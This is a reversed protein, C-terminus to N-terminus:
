GGMWGSCGPFLCLRPRAPWPGAAWAMRLEAELIGQGLSLSGGEQRPGRGGKQGRWALSGFAAQSDLNLDWNWSRGATDSPCTAQGRQAETGEDTCHLYETCGGHVPNSHPNFSKIWFLPRRM